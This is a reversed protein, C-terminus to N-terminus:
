AVAELLKRIEADYVKKNSYTKILPVHDIGGGRGWGVMVGSIGDALTEIAAAGFATAHYRDRATPRGGRQIHGLICVWSMIGGRSKLIESLELAGGSDDGEAVVIMNTKKGIDLGAKIESILRDIDTSIEPVLVADAGGGVGAYLAIDGSDRGMVEIIFVREMASATDRIRDIADLATNVATDFGITQETGYIDRDITGPIGIVKIDTEQSLLHAGTLSGNGGIVILGQIDRKTLNEAAKQRGGPTMFEESRSSTLISGGTQVINSVDSRELVSFDDAILGQYGRRYGFVKIGKKLGTRVVARICANMGPADGGSTIIAAKDRAM